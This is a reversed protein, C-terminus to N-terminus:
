RAVIVFHSRRNLKWASEDSGLAFPREEGYSIIKIRPAAIGLFVLYDRVASARREGLALNYERTNREDCHGEVLISITPYQQLWAANRALSERAAPTLDYRDTDFFVDELYGQANLQALDEPLEETVEESVITETVPEYVVEEPVTGETAAPAPTRAPSPAQMKPGSSKCAGLGLAMVLVVLAAVIRITSRMELGGAQTRRQRAFPAEFTM